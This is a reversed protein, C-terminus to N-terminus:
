AHDGHSGQSVRRGAHFGRLLHPHTDFPQTKWQPFDSPDAGKWMRIDNLFRNEEEPKFKLVDHVEVMYQSAAKGMIEDVTDQFDPKQASYILVIKPNPSREDNMM